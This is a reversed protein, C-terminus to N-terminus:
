KNILTDNINITDGENAKLSDLRQFSRAIVAGSQQIVTNAAAKKYGEPFQFSQPYKTTPNATDYFLVNVIYNFSGTISDTGVSATDIDVSTIIYKWSQAHAFSALLLAALFVIGAKKM